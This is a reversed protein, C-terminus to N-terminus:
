IGSCGRPIFEPYEKKIATQLKVDGDIAIKVTTAGFGLARLRPGMKEM